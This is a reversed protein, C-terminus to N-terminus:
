TVITYIMKQRVDDHCFDKSGGMKNEFTAEKKHGEAEDNCNASNHACSGHKWCYKNAFRRKFTPNNPTKKAKRGGVGNQRVQIDLPLCYLSRKYVRPVM